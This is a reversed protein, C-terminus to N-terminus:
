ESQVEKAAVVAGWAAGLTKIATGIKAEVDHFPVSYLRLNYWNGGAEGTVIFEVSSVEHEGIQFQHPEIIISPPKDNCECDPWDVDHRNAQWAYWDAENYEKRVNNKAIRWGLEQLRDRLEEHQM